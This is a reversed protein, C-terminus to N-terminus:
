RKQEKELELEMREALEIIELARKKLRVHLHPSKRHEESLSGIKEIIAVIEDDLSGNLQDVLKITPVVMMNGASALFAIVAELVPRPLMPILFAPLHQDTSYAFWRSINAQTTKLADALQEQTIEADQYAQVCTTKLDEALRRQTTDSINM